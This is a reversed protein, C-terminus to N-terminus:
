FEPPEPLLVSMLELVGQAGHQPGPYHLSCLCLRLFWFCIMAHHHNGARHLTPTNAHGHFLSWVSMEVVGTLAFEWTLGLTLSMCVCADGKQLVGFDCEWLSYTCFSFESLHDCATDWKVSIDLRRHCFCSRYQIIYSSYHGLRPPNLRKLVM